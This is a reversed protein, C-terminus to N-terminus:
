AVAFTRESKFFCCDVFPWLDVHDPNLIQLNWLALSGTMAHSQLHHPHLPAVISLDHAHRSSLFQYRVYVGEALSIFQWHKTHM